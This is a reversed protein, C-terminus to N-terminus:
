PSGAADPHLLAASELELKIVKSPWRPEEVAELRGYVSLTTGKITQPNLAPDALLDPTITAGVRFHALDSKDEAFEVLGKKPDYAAVTGTFRYSKHQWNEYLRKRNVNKVIGNRPAFAGSSDFSPSLRDPNNPVWVAQLLAAPDLVPFGSGLERSVKVEANDEVTATVPLVPFDRAQLAFTKPGPPLPGITLPTQGLSQRGWVITAGAPVSEVRLRGQPFRVTGGAETNEAITVKHAQVPWGPLELTLDCEGPPLQAVTLPTKGLVSTGKKVTAGSPNSELKLSGVKFTLTAETTKTAEIRVNAHLDPWGEARATVAYTGPALGPEAQGATLKIAAAAAEGAAPVRAAELTADALNTKVLLGGTKQPDPPPPTAAAAPKGAKEGSGRSLSIVGIALLALACLVAPMFWKKGLLSHLPSAPKSGPAAPRPAPNPREPDPM